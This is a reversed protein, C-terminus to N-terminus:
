QGYVGLFTWKHCDWTKENPFLLTAWLFLWLKCDNGWNFYILILVLPHYISFLAVHYKSDLVTM